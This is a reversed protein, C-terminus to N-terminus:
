LKPVFFREVASASPNPHFLDPAFGGAFGGDITCVCKVLVSFLIRGTLAAKPQDIGRAVM